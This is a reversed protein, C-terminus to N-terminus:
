QGQALFPQRYRPMTSARFHSGQGSIDVTLKSKGAVSYYFRLSGFKEKVQEVRFRSAQGDDLLGDIAACLRNMIATWGRPFWVDLDIGNKFIRPYAQKLAEVHAVPEQDANM